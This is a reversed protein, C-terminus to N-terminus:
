FNKATLVALAEPRTVKAGYLHLGKVADAFRREPRYAEVKNVQEAFTWAIRSGAIVKYATGGTVAVAPVNTSVRIDFGAARGIAGNELTARNPDTGYGVFRQDRLLLGEYWPPIVAFRGDQPVNAANLAVRLAVLQDYAADPTTISIPAADSGILNGADADVYKSAIFVDAAQALAQAAEWMAEDMVKPQQQAADVDDIQFNFAKAQDIVLLRQADTLTEPPPMDTNKAYDFVTVAGISNIKVTDGAQRIDGEYDRNCLDAYVYAPKLNRLLRSAWVQPIFNNLAM